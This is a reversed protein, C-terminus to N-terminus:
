RGRFPQQQLHRQIIAEMSLNERWLREFSDRLDRYSDVFVDLTLAEFQFIGAMIAADVRMQATSDRAILVTVLDHALRQNCAGTFYGHDAYCQDHTKCAADIADIAEPLERIRGSEVDARVFGWGPGCYHGGYYTSIGPRKFRVELKSTMRFITFPLQLM